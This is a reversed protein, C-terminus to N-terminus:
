GTSSRARIPPPRTRGAGPDTCRQGDARADRHYRNGAAALHGGAAIVYRDPGAAARPPTAGAPRPTTPSITTSVSGSDGGGLIVVTGVVAVLLIVGAVGAVWLWRRDLPEDYVDYPDYDDYDDYELDDATREESACGNRRRRRIPLIHQM